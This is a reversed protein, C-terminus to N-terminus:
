TRTLDNEYFNKIGLFHSSVGKLRLGYFLEFTHQLSGSMASRYIRSMEQMHVHHEFYFQDVMNAYRPDDSLQKAIPLEISSTDIDLKILLLSILFKQLISHLPNLKSDVSANVGVNIWLYSHMYEISLLHHYVDSPDTFTAEFGYMHDFYFGFRQYLNLLYTIPNEDAQFMNKNNIM